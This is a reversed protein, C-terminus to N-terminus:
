ETPDVAEEVLISNLGQRVRVFETELKTLLGDCREASPGSEELEASLSSMVYAGLEACSGRMAHAERQASPFDTAALASRIATLRQPTDSLFLSALENVIDPENEERMERLEMLGTLDIGSLSSDSLAHNNQTDKSPSLEEKFSDILSKKLTAGWHMLVRQLEEVRVPKTIYDDMGARLCKEKDGQM